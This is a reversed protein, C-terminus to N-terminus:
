LVTENWIFVDKDTEAQSMSLTGYTSDRAAPVNILPNFDFLEGDFHENDRIDEPYDNVATMSIEQVSNRDLRAPGASARFSQFLELQVDRVIDVIQGRLTEELPNLAEEIRLELQHRVRDPMEHRLFNEYETM